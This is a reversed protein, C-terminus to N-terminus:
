GSTTPGIPTVPASLRGHAPRQDVMRHAGAPGRGEVRHGGEILCGNWGGASVPRRLREEWACTPPRPPVGSEDDEEDNREDDKEGGERETM